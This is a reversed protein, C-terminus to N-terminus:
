KTPLTFDAGIGSEEMSEIIDAVKVHKPHNRYTDIAEQNQARVFIVHNYGASFKSKNKTCVIGLLGPIESGLETLQQFVNKIQQDTVSHKWRYLAIHVVLQNNNVKPKETTIWIDDNQCVYYTRDYAKNGNRFNYSTDQNSVVMEKSCTPCKM